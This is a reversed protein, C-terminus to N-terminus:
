FPIDPDDESTSKVEPESDTQVPVAEQPDFPYKDFLLEYFRDIIKDRFAEKKQKDKIPSIKLEEMTKFWKVPKSNWNIYVRQNNDDKVATLKLKGGDGLSPINSMCNLINLTIWTYFGFQVQYVTGNDTLYIDLKKQDAKQFEYSHSNFGLFDGVIGPYDVHECRFKGTVNNISVFNLKGQQVQEETQLGM